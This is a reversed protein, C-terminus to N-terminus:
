WQIRKVDFIHSGITAKVPGPIVQEKNDIQVRLFNIHIVEDNRKIVNMPDFGTIQFGEELINRKGEKNFEDFVSDRLDVWSHINKEILSKNENEYSIDICKIDLEKQIFDGLFLESNMFKDKWGPIYM